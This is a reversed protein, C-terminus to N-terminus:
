SLFQNGRTAQCFRAHLTEFQRRYGAYGDTIGSARPDNFVREARALAQLAPGLEKVLEAITALREAHHDRAAAKAAEDRAVAAAMTSWATRERNWARLVAAKTDAREDDLVRWDDVPVGRAPIWENSEAHIRSNARFVALAASEADNAKVHAEVATRFAAVEDTSNVAADLLWDPITHRETSITMRGEEARPTDTM